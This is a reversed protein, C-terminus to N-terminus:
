SKKGFLKATIESLPPGPVAAYGTKGKCQEAKPPRSSQTNIQATQKTPTM